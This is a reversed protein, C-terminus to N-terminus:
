GDVDIKGFVLTNINRVAQMLDSAADEVYASSVETEISLGPRLLPAEAKIKYKNNM